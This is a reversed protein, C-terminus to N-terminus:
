NLITNLMIAHLVHRLSCALNPDMFQTMAGEAIAAILMDLPEGRTRAEDQLAKFIIERLMTSCRAWSPWGKMHKIEAGFVAIIEELDDNPCAYFSM